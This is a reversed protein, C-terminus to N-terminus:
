TPEICNRTESTDDSGSKILVICDICDYCCLPAWENTFVKSDYEHTLLNDHCCYSWSFGGNNPWMQCILVVSDMLHWKIVREIKFRGQLKSHTRTKKRVKKEVKKKVKKKVKKGVKKGVKKEVKKGVKEWSKERSKERRKKRGKKPLSSVEFHDTSSHSVTLLSSLASPEDSSFTFLPFSLNLNIIATTLM